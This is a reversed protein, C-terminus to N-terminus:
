LSLDMGKEKTVEKDKLEVLQSHNQKVFNEKDKNLSKLNETFLEKNEKLKEELNSYHENMKANFKAAMKLEEKSVDQKRIILQSEGYKKNIDEDFEQTRRIVYDNLDAKEV